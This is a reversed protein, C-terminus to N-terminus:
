AAKALEEQHEEVGQGIDAQRGEVCESFDGTKWPKILNVHWTVGM